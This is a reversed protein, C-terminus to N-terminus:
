EVNELKLFTIILIITESICADSTCLVIWWKGAELNSPWAGWINGVIQWVVFRTTDCNFFLIDCQLVIQLELTTNSNM